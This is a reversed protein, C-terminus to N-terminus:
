GNTMDEFFDNPTLKYESAERLANITGTTIDGEYRMVRYLTMRSIGAMRAFKSKSLGMDKIYTEIAHTKM